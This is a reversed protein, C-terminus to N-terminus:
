APPLDPRRSTLAPPAASLQAWLVALGQDRKFPPAGSLMEFAACALSYVDTRADLPRGEVKEPALYDLTGVNQGTYTQISTAGVQKRVWFDSLYGHAAAGGESSDALRNLLMNAPKVD